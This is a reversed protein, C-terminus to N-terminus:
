DVYVFENLNFILLCWSKLARRQVTSPKQMHHPRDSEIKQWMATQRSLYDLSIQVEAATPGRGFALSYAREIQRRRDSGAERILRQAFEEAQRDMFSNNLLILAQPAITTTNRSAVPKDPTPVDLTELFPVPLTRKVFIYVSRRNQETLSSRDWGAGPRSQTALVGPPLTPFVGRGGMTRNLRGSVALVSDRISEADLRLLNQRWLLTNGPDVTVARPNNIRSSQRYTASLMILRHIRKLKWGGDVLESALWDLLQQNSPHQGTHGFDSPTPVIGRGFHHQWLRNVIVRATLSNDPRTIWRALARRRGSTPKVGYEALLTRFRNPRGSQIPNTAAKVSGGGLVLPFAAQVVPGPSHANGRILLHTPPPTSSGERVSLARDFPLRSLSERLKKIRETLQKKRATEDKNLAAALQRGSRGPNGARSRAQRDILTIQKQAITIETQLRQVQNQWRRHAEPTVLPTFIGNPNPQWHTYSTSKGYPAVNQFFALLRYYDAHPIPDFKHDHCRACGVTLGLFTEGTTRIIDDLEEYWAALKDDPEDDWVGLRYFGTAIISEPTADDLEDGALQETVFRDYPKDKNLANIVYDRYRWAYPKEGDREYGNTQAYRVLDLWYRGWRQGYEPSALLRDVLRPWADPSCDAEFAATTEPSPRLGSLDFYARRILERKTAPPSPSLGRQQLEHLIFRDVPNRVWRQSRVAPLKPRQVPRFSWFERDAKTISGKKGRHTTASEGDAGPWVAGEAIWKTLITIQKDKLKRDPPMELGDYNIAEILLSERPKGPVIAPGSEGGSLMASRSDLRLDGKHKQEGHCRFCRAHLLPRVKSEFFRIQKRNPQAAGASILGSAMVAILAVSVALPRRVEIQYCLGAM